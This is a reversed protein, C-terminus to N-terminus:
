RIFSRLRITDAHNIKLQSFIGEREEKKRKKGSSLVSTIPSLSFSTGNIKARVPYKWIRSKSGFSPFKIQRENVRCTMNIPSSLIKCQLTTFFYYFLLVVSFHLNISLLNRSIERKKQQAAARTEGRRRRARGRTLM